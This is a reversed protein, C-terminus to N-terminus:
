ELVEIGELLAPHVRKLAPIRERAWTCQRLIDSAFTISHKAELIEREHRKEIARLAERAAGVAEVKRAKDATDPVLRLAERLIQIDGSVQDSTLGLTGMAERLACGDGALAAGAAERRLVDRYIISAEARETAVENAEAENLAGLQDLLPAAPIAEAATAKQKGM